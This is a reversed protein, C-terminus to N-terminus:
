AQQVTTVVGSGSVATQVPRKKLAYMRQDAIRLLKTADKADRPFISFGLSAGVVMAHDNVIIPREIANQLSQMFRDVSNESAM